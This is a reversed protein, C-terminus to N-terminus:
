AQGLKKLVTSKFARFGKYMEVAEEPEIEIGLEEEFGSVLFMHQLSDWNEITQPTASDAIEQPSVKLIAAFLEKIRNEM